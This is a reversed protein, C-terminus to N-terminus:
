LDAVLVLISHVHMYPVDGSSHTRQRCVFQSVLEGVLAPVVRACCCGVTGLEHALHTGESCDLCLKDQLEQELGLRSECLAQSCCFSLLLFLAASVSCVGTVHQVNSSMFRKARTYMCAPLGSVALPVGRSSLVMM